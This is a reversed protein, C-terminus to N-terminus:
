TDKQKYVEESFALFSSEESIHYTMKENLALDKWPEYINSQLLISLSMKVM